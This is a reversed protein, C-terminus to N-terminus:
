GHRRRAMYGAQYGDKYGLKYLAANAIDRDTVRSVADTKDSAPDAELLDRLGEELVYFQRFTRYHAKPHRWIIKQQNRTNVVWGIM